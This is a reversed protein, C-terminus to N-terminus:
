KESLRCSGLQNCFLCAGPYLVQSRCSHKYLVQCFHPLFCRRVFKKWSDENPDVINYLIAITSAFIRRLHLQGWSQNWTALKSFYCQQKMEEVLNCTVNKSEALRLIEPIKRSHLYQLKRVTFGSELYDKKILRERSDIIPAPHSLISKGCCQETWIIM